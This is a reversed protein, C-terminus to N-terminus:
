NASSFRTNLSAGSDALESIVVYTSTGFFGAGSRPAVLGECTDDTEEDACANMPQFCSPDEAVAIRPNAGAAGDVSIALETVDKPMMVHYVIDRATGTPSAPCSEPGFLDAEDGGGATEHTYITGHPQGSLDVVFPDACTGTGTVNPAADGGDFCADPVVGGTSGSSESGESSSGGDDSSDESGSSGADGTTGTDSTSGTDAGTSSTAPTPDDTTAQTGTTAQSGTTSDTGSGAGGDGDGDSDCAVLCVGLAALTLLRMVM